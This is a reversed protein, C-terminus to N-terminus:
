HYVLDLPIFKRLYDTGLDGQVHDHDDLAKKIMQTFPEFQKRNIREKVDKKTSMRSFFSCRLPNLILVCRNVWGDMLRSM